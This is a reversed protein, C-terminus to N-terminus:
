RASLRIEYEGLAIALDASSWARPQALETRLAAEVRERRERDPEPGPPRQRIAAAGIERHRAFLRRVTQPHCRLHEAIQPVTWGADSLLVMEVRDREVPKLNKDRRLEQLESRQEPSLTIRLM